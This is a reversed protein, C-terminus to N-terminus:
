KNIEFYNFGQQDKYEKIRKQTLLIKLYKIVTNAHIDMQQCLESINQPKLEILQYLDEIQSYIHNSTSHDKNISPIVEVPLPMFYERIDNLHSIDCPKVWDESGARDLSNLQIKDAKIDICANKLLNLESYMDNVGAVIFIELFIKGQYMKRFDILGQVIQEAKVLPHARNIKQFVSDSVADLSPLILDAEQIEERVQQQCLLSSNTILAIPYQPYHSKIYQIIVAIDLNLTPEGAGSFTIYNLVPQTSLYDDLEKFLQNLDLYHDRQNTLQNTRGVECYICDFNCVKYPILDVGLSIGLRRSHVPGFIHKYKM